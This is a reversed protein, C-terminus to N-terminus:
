PPADITAPSVCLVKLTYPGERISYGEIVLDYRGVALIVPLVTQLGCDGTDDGSAVEHELELSYVRLYTDFGSGCSDFIFTGATRVTFNYIHEGSPNRLQNAAGVTNGSVTEGCATISGVRPLPSPSPPPPTQPPPPPHPPPSPPPSPPTYPVVLPFSATYGEHFTLGAQGFGSWSAGRWGGGDRATLGLDCYMGPSAIAAFTREDDSGGTDM